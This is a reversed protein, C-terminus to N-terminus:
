KRCAKKELIYTLIITKVRREQRIESLEVMALKRKQLEKIAPLLITSKLYKYPRLSEPVCWSSIVDEINLKISGQIGRFRQQELLDYLRAAYKGEIPIAEKNVLKTFNGNLSSIFPALEDSWKIRVEHEEPIFKISQVWRFHQVSKPSDLGRITIYRDFISLVGEKVTDYAKRLEINCLSAYDEVSMTYHKTLDLEKSSDMKSLTIFLIRREVINLEYVANLVVNALSAHREALKTDQKALNKM